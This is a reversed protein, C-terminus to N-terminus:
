EAVQWRCEFANGFLVWFGSLRGKLRQDFATLALQVRQNQLLRIADTTFCYDISEDVGFATVDFYFNGVVGFLKAQPDTVITASEIWLNQFVAAARIM